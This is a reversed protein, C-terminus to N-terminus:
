QPSIWVTYNQSGVITYPTMPLRAKLSYNYSGNVTLQSTSVTCTPLTYDSSTTMYDGYFVTAEQGPITDGGEVEVVIKAKGDMHLCRCSHLVDSNGTLQHWRNRSVSEAGYNMLTANYRNAIKNSGFDASPLTCIKPQANNNLTGTLANVTVPVIIVFLSALLLPVLRKITKMM